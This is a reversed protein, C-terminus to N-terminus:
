KGAALLTLGDAKTSDAITVAGATEAALKAAEADNEVIKPASGGGTMFLRRWHNQFQSTNMGVAQQLFQDQTASNKAIVIVLRTDGLTVKKGLLVAKVADSDLAQGAFSKNGLLAPDAHVITALVLACGAALLTRFFHLNM